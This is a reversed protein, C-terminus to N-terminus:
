LYGDNKGDLHGNSLLEPERQHFVLAPNIPWFEARNRSSDRVIEFAGKTCVLCVNLGARLGRLASFCRAKRRIYSACSATLSRNKPIANQRPPLPTLKVKRNSKGHWTASAVRIFQSRSRHTPQSSEHSDAKHCHLNNIGIVAKPSATRLYSRHISRM